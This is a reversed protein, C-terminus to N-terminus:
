GIGPLYQALNLKALVDKIDDSATEALLTLRIRDVGCACQGLLFLHGPRGDLNHIWAM